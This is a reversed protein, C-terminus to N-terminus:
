SSSLSLSSKVTLFPSLVVRPGMLIFGPLEGVRTPGQLSWRPSNIRIIMNAFHFAASPPPIRFVTPTSAPEDMQFGQLITYVEASMKQAATDHRGRRELMARGVKM